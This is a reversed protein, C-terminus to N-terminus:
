FLYLEYVSDAFDTVTLHRPLAVNLDGCITIPILSGHKDVVSQLADIKSLFQETQILNSSSFYPMYVIIIIEITNGSSDCVSIPMLRDSTTELECFTVHDIEECIVAVGGFPRGCYDNDVSCMGLEAFM